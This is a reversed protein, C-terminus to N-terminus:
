VSLRIAESLKTKVTLGLEMRVRSVDPVYFDAAGAVAAGLVKVRSSSALEDRVTEALKQISVAEDSGVNYARGSEGRELIAFLWEVLDDAYMYSRMPTGDGKIVIDRDLLADRVFNGIAFHTDRNLHKGVFSFCRPLLVYLGSDIAMKEAELKAIGYATYPRPVETEAVPACFGKGYIGGSSVMMFKTAGCKKAQAIVNETGDLIISQMEDDPVDARAPTAAHIVYDFHADGVAFTRVDGLLQKIQFLSPGALGHRSFVTFDYDSRNRSFYDVISKGFFGTGGTVLIKKV